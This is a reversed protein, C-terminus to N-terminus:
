ARLQAVSRPLSPRVRYPCLAASVLCLQLLDETVNVSLSWRSHYSWPRPCHCPSSECYPQSFPTDPSTALCRPSAPAPNVQHHAESRRHILQRIRKTSSARAQMMRFSCWYKGNTVANLMPTQTKPKQPSKAYANRPQMSRARRCPVTSKERQFVRM